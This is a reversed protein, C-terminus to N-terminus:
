KRRSLLDKVVDGLKMFNQYESPKHFYSHAGLRMMNERDHPSESTSVAIVLASCCRGSRRMQELVEGGTKKPLNIDLIVLAPCPATIDSDAQEFFKVAQEGDRVVHVDAVIEATQIAARILFVDAANDEV